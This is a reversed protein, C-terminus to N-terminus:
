KNIHSVPWPSWPMSRAPRGPAHTARVHGWVASPASLGCHAVDLLESARPSRGANYGKERYSM